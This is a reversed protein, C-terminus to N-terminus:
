IGEASHIHTHTHTNPPILLMLLSLVKRVPLLSGSWMDLKQAALRRLVAM